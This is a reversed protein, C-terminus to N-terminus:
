DSAQEFRVAANHIFSSRIKDWFDGGRARVPQDTFAPRRGPRLATSKPYLRPHGGGWPCLALSISCAHLVDGALDPLAPPQGEEAPRIAEILYM